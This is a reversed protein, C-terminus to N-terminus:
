MLGPSDRHWPRRHLKTMFGKRARAVIDKVTKLKLARATKNGSQCITQSQRPTSNGCSPRDGVPSIRRTKLVKVTSLQGPQVTLFQSCKSTCCETAFVSNAM